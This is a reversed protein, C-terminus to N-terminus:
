SRTLSELLSPLDVQLTMWIEQSDIKRYHHVLLDRARCIDSWPIEPYAARTAKSLAKTAEGIIVLQFIAASQTRADAAFTTYDMEEVFSLALTAAQKIDELRNSDRDRRM